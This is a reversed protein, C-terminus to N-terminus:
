HSFKLVFENNWSQGPELSVRLLLTVCTSQYLDATGGPLGCPASVPVIRAEFTKKSGLSIQVENKLDQFKLSEVGPIGERADGELPVNNGRLVRVFDEGYGPFSFDARSSFIFDTKEAGNNALVYSVALADKRSQFTKEMGIAGYFTEGNVPLTFRIKLKGRDMEGPIFQEDGCNRFFAEGGPSLFADTFAARRRGKERVEEAGALGRPVLTDFYNWNKPLYDLEFIGAGRPEIYSNIKEDQLLYEIGGDLNVDFHLLSPNFRGKERTIKEAGILARYAARRLGPRFIGGEPPPAYLDCGQAKWLEERATRKRAKDGRLQNILTHVYMMKSYVGNSEPYDIIFRRPGPCGRFVSGAYLPVEGLSGPFYAKKPKELSRSLKGPTTYEVFSECRSLEEFFRQFVYEPSDGEGTFLTGPFVSVTWPGPPLTRALGNLVDSANKRAFAAKLENSAPFVTIIKGQDETVCPLYLDGGELGALLFQSDSLFTYGVGSASLPSVLNQEWALAPLWCGQPRKGFSKRLYTTLLEVQGIKDQPPIIPMMPEYFGGGLIEVQKRSLLDRILYFFEPHFRELRHLLVGSYYLVAQIKPFQYLTQLFPKVRREYVAEFEDDGAGLPVHNHSGLILSIIRSM